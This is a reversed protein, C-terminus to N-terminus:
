ITCLQVQMCAECADDHTHQRTGVIMDVGGAVLNLEGPWSVESQGEVVGSIIATPETFTSGGDIQLM